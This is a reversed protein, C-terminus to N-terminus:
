APGPPGPRELGELISPAGADDSLVIGDSAGYGCDDTAGDADPVVVCIDDHLLVSPDDGRACFHDSLLSLRHPPRHLGLSAARGGPARQGHELIGARIIFHAM